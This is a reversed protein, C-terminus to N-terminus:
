VKYFIDVFESTALSEEPALTVHVGSEAMSLSLKLVKTKLYPVLNLISLPLTVKRQLIHRFLRHSLFNEQIFSPLKGKMYLGMEGPHILIIKNKM